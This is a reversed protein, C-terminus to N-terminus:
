NKSRKTKKFLRANNQAKFGMNGEDERFNQWFNKSLQESSMVKQVNGKPDLVRVQYFM